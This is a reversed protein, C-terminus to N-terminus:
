EYHKMLGTLILSYPRLACAGGKGCWLLWALVCGASSCLKAPAASLRIALDGGTLMSLALSGLVSM